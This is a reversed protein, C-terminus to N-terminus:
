TENPSLEGESVAATRVAVELGQSFPLTMTTFGNSPDQLFAFL